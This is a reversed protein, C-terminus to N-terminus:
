NELYKYIKMFEKIMLETSFEKVIEFLLNARRNLIKPKRLYNVIETSLIDINYIDVYNAMIEPIVELHTPIKSLFLPTKCLAAEIVSNPMGEYKSLSIFLSAKKFIGWLIERRIFGTFYVRSTIRYEEVKLKYSNELPGGGCIVLKLKPNKISVKKFIKLILDVQKHISTNSLRSSVVIFDDGSLFKELRKPLQEKVKIIKNIDFGNRILLSKKVKRAQWYIKGLKSNSIIIANKAILEKIIKKFPIKKYNNNQPSIPEMIIHNIGLIISLIGGIIDMQISWTQIIHPKLKIILLFLKIIIRPDYNNIIKIRHIKVKGLSIDQYNPGQSIYAINVSIKKSTGKAIIGMRREMGGGSLQPILHLIPRKM